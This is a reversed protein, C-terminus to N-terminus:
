EGHILKETLAELDELTEPQEYEIVEPERETKPEHKEFWKPKKAPREHESESSYELDAELDPESDSYDQELEMKELEKRRIKKERRKRKVIDKDEVDAAEMAKKEENVFEEKLKEVPGEKHFEEEDELEYIPHAKGDDDFVLKTGSGRTRAALKKSLARKIARKSTNAELPPLDQLEHDKRKVALFDDDQETQADVNLKLYHESLVGQNQREFMKDYKTRTKKAEVEGNEDAKALLSLQRSANKKQKQKALEEEGGVMKIKPTGPLGLSKAFEDLPLQKVDFVEKDKQIYVSKVYSIFAKQGLYKLDPSKFCLSQIQDRISKKKSNRINLKKPVIKKSELRKVFPGEESPTLMLLSKGARGARASRGVRHIYTAVDEPCDLQVVWDIAPFDLGRAVVDTAFLCCHRSESFKFTTEMRAKQKQRGHLKMLSIGPQLKRFAEYIFHVQKSSSVFVLIKSDLHSKIFSWLIDLKDQLRIVVYSQELSEPTSSTDSSTNVYEPNVLSLRALDQVSKTQTASFLLSQREPPLNSIIDDVTKKFGLDLIRDAEDLVLIQLNTLNLTASQDMHQLLRGPTGILINMKGIREKEFEYDKGGIVLGASFSHYKGIKLLVEYIQMALERTPSIILAGVGDFENWNEHVLKEIVPILFALTKGSGTKAAGLIDHGKLALPISDRQIDTMTVYSSEKVGRLTNKTLPLEDFKTFSKAHDLPLDEIQQKLQELEKAALAAMRKQEERTHKKKVKAM